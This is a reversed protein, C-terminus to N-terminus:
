KCSDIFDCGIVYDIVDYSRMNCRREGELRIIILQVLSKWLVESKLVVLVVLVVM